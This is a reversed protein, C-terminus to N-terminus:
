RFNTRSFNCTFSLTLCFVELQRCYLCTYFAPSVTDLSKKSKKEKNKLHKKHEQMEVDERDIKTLQKLIEGTEADLKEYEKVRINHENEMAQVEDRLGKYKDQDEELKATLQAQYTNSVTSCNDTSMGVRRPQLVIQCLNQLCVIM